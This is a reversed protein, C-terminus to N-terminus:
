EICLLFVCECVSLLYVCARDGVSTFLHEPQSPDYKVANGVSIIMYESGFEIVELVARFVYSKQHWKHSKIITRIM